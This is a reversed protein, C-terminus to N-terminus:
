APPRRAAASLLRRGPRAGTHGKPGATIVGNVIVYEIGVPYQAPNEFTARDIVTAPDFVVVDAFYGERIQGRRDLRFLTAPFATMRRIAVPLEQVHGERVYRGLVRPFLGFAAPHRSLAGLLSGAVAAATDTGYTMDRRMEMAALADAEDEPAPPQRRPYPRSAVTVDVGRDEAEIIRRAALALPGWGPASAGGFRALMVPVHAQQSLVALAAAQESLPPAIPAISPVTVLPVDFGAATRALATLMAQDPPTGM